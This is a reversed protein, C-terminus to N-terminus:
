NVPQFANKLDYKAVNRGLVVGAVGSFRYHLGAWVRADVIQKRLDGPRAFTQVANFNGAPGSPDFGHVELNMSNGGLFQSFVEALASSFSGHAAPYEPHNPTAALPRWGTEEATDSNGDDYGPIPGFTDGPLPKVSTPDIATVPRWFLYHYKATMVAIQADAGVMNVMAELRASELVSLDASRIVDRVVRNYQRVANATWFLAINTQESTRASGTLRGYQHIENVAEVWQDSSLSPPADPLFQDGSQLIFPTM